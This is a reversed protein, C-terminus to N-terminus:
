SSIARSSFSMMARSCTFSAATALAARSAETWLAGVEVLEGAVSMTPSAVGSTGSGPDASRDRRTYVTCTRTGAGIPRRLSRGPRDRPVLTRMPVNNDIVPLPKAWAGTASLGTTSGGALPASGHAGSEANVLTDLSRLVVHKPMQGVHVFGHLESALENM